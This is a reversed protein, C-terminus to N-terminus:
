NVFLFYDQHINRFPMEEPKSQKEFLDHSRQGEVLELERGSDVTLDSRSLGGRTNRTFRDISELHVSYVRDQGGHLEPRVSKMLRDLRNWGGEDRRM